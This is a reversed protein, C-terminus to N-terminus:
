PGVAAPLDNDGPTLTTPPEITARRPHTDHRHRPHP